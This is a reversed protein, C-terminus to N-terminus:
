SLQEKLKKFLMQGQKNNEEVLVRLIQLHRTSPNPETALFSKLTNVFSNQDHWEGLKKYTIQVRKFVPKGEDPFNLNVLIAELNKLIKLKKRIVHLNKDTASKSLILKIKNLEDKNIQNIDRGVQNLKIKKLARYLEQSRKEFKEQEFHRLSKLFKKENDHNKTKLHNKFTILGESRYFRALKLNLENKRVEGARDFISSLLKLHSKKKLDKKLLSKAVLLLIRLNKIDVRLEHIVDEDLGEVGKLHKWFSNTNKEYVEAITQVSSM